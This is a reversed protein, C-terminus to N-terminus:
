VKTLTLDRGTAESRASDLFERQDRQTLHYQGVGVLVRVSGTGYVGAVHDGPGPLGEMGREGEASIRDTLHPMGLVQGPVSVTTHAAEAKARQDLFVPIAIAALIGIVVLAGLGIALGLLVKLATPMGAPPAQVFPAVQYPPYGAPAPPPAWGARKHAPPEQRHPLPHVWTQQPLPPPQQPPTPRTVSGAFYDDM